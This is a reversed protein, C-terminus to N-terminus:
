ILLLNGLHPSFRYKSHSQGDVRCSSDITNVHVVPLFPLMHLFCTGINLCPCVKVSGDSSGTILCDSAQDVCLTRISSSEHANFSYLVSPKRLDVFCVDGRKTGVIVVRDRPTVSMPYGSSMWPMRVSSSPSEVTSWNPWGSSSLSPVCHAVATCPCDLEPDTVGVDCFIHANPSM